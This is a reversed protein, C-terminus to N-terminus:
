RLGDLVHVVMQGNDLDIDLIVSEIAPLLLEGGPGIIVFVDNAGTTIIETLKGLPTGDEEVVQLGIIQHEYFEDDELPVADKLAIQVLVGRLMEAATRDDCGVLKFLAAEQHLRVAEVQWPQAEPGLYVTRLRGLQEPYETVLQVRLEGRLGFPRVVRGIALYNPEPRRPSTGSGQDQEQVSLTM